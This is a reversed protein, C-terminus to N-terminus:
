FIKGYYMMLAAIVDIVLGIVIIIDIMPEQKKLVINITIYIIRYITIERIYMDEENSLIGISMSTRSLM